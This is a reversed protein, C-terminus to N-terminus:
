DRPGRQVGAQPATQGAPGTRKAPTRAAAATAPALPASLLPRFSATGDREGDERPAQQARERMQSPSHGFHRTFRRSFAAESHYGAMESIEAIKLRGQRVMAAAQEMRHQAVVEMPARGVAQSFHAAFNSRGMGVSRALKEVTWSASPDARIMRLAEGIPDRQQPALIQRCRPEARLGAVLLLAAIRTLVAAAGASMGAVALADPRLLAAAPGTDAAALRLMSPLAARSAEDPWTPLLRGSLLRARVPGGDNGLAVTPPVDIAADRRLLDHAAAPSGPETRLAHAEGSLVFVMDGPGLEAVEGAACALRVTGHLVAHFLVAEGPPVSFGATGILDSYCWTRGRLDLGALLGSLSGADTGAVSRAKIIRRRRSRTPLPFGGPATSRATDRGLIHRQRNADVM